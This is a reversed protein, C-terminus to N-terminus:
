PKPIKQDWSIFTKLSGTGKLHRQLTAGRFLVTVATLFNMSALNRLTCVKLLLSCSEHDAHPLSCYSVLKSLPWLICSEHQALPLRLIKNGFQYSQGGLPFVECKVHKYKPHCILCLCFMDTFLNKCFVNSLPSQIVLKSVTWVGISNYVIKLPM